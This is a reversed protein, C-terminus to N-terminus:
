STGSRSSRKSKSSHPSDSGSRGSTSRTSDQEKTSTDSSILGMFEPLRKKVLDMYRNHEIVKELYTVLDDYEGSFESEFLDETYTPTIMSGAVMRKILQPTGTVDLRGMIGAALKGPNIWTDLFSGNPPIDGVGEAAGAIIKILAIGIELGETTAFQQITYSKKGVTIQAQDLM